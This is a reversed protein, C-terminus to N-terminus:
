KLIIYNEFIIYTMFVESDGGEAPEPCARILTTNITINNKFISEGM